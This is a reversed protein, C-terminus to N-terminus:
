WTYRVIATGALTHARGAFEGDFKAALALGNAFHLEAGASVLGFDSPPTAGGVIFSSGPLAQFVAALSPDSVWDHAWALKARLVLFTTPDLAFTRDFRSGLESRTDTATRGAYSLGFSGGSTDSESYSPTVFAQSQLGVYPTVAVIPFNFRYGGEARGGFSEADFQATLQDFGFSLRDTSMWQQTYALSAAVYAPGFTTKGYVGAQFATSRGGGLGEAVSWGTGGGALAFGLATSPSLRYDAGVAFGGTSATLDHSGVAAPDGSTHNVGGYAGGWLTWGQAVPASKTLSAADASALQFSLTDSNPAFGMVTGGRGDVFPDLMLTLFETMLQFAAQQGGTGAEGSLQSLATNLNSGTLGFVNVFSPPLEGGANFFTNLATAVQQQNVSLHGTVAGLTATLDLVVDTTTYGLSAGFGAPLNVTQLGDFTSGGLGATHLITYDRSVYSGVAFAAEVTGGLTATGGGTLNASSATSPTVQILYFAGPQFTLNGAVTLTGPSGAAGPALTGGGSVNVSGVTGIGTLTGGSSVTIKSGALTANMQLTGGDITWPGSTTNAGTLTWTSSGTKQFLGFGLYQNGIQSVDFSANSTGGLRLTDAASFAVVNGMITSGARLELINIGGTFTIADAPPGILSRGASVIGSNIVTLGTGVIGAAGGGFPGGSAAGGSVMGANSFTAGSGTFQVGVGGAGANGMGGGFGGSGGSVTGANNFTAGSGTFSVGTGGNGFGTGGGSVKGANNFTAGSGSFLVGVGSGAAFGGGGGSVTGANNFTVGSGTFQVGVGGGAGFGGAGGSVAGANNFTAGSGTVQVGVGGIGDGEGGTVTVTNNFTAGSATFLLGAGGDALAPITSVMTVFFIAATALLILSCRWRGREGAIHAVTLPRPGSPHYPM